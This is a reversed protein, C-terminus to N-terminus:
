EGNDKGEEMQRRLEKIQAETDEWRKINKEGNRRAYNVFAFSATTLPMKWVIYEMDHGTESHCISVLGMLWDSDFTMNKKNDNSPKTMMEFGTFAYKMYINLLAKIAFRQYDALSKIFGDILGKIDKQGIHHEFVASMASQGAVLLFYLTDVDEDEIDGGTIYGSQLIELMVLTGATPYPIKIKECVYCEGLAFLAESYLEEATMGGALAEIKALDIKM